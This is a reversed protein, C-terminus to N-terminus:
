FKTRLWSELQAIEATQSTIINSALVVVEPHVGEVLLVQKAMMVAMMHHGIMGQVYTKDLNKGSYKELGAMMPEYSSTDISPTAYWDQHWVKMDSIEKTQASIVKNLFVKLDPDQTHSLLYLSTDVAEQHHPIMQEIFSRESTVGTNMMMADDQMMGHMMHHSNSPQLSATSSRANKSIKPMTDRIAMYVGFTLLVVSLLAVARYLIRNSM